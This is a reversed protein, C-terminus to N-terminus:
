IPLIVERTTYIPFLIISRGVTKTKRAGVLFCILLLSFGISSIISLPNIQLHFSGDILKYGTFMLAVISIWGISWALLRIGVLCRSAVPFKHLISWLGVYWRRRQVLFGNVSHPSLISIETRSQFAKTNYGAKIGFEADEVISTINNWSSKLISGKVLMGEGHMGFLCKGVIGLSLAFAGKDDAYRLNDALHAILSRGKRPVIICNGVLRNNDEAWAADEQFKNDMPYSDDDLFMYWKDKDAINHSFWWIAKGKAKGNTWDNPVILIEIGRIAAYETIRGDVSPETLLYIKGNSVELTRDIVNKICGFLNARGITTIVIDVEKRSTSKMKCRNAFGLSSIIASISYPIYAIGFV